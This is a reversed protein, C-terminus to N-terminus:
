SLTSQVWIGGSLLVPMCNVTWNCSLPASEISSTCATWCSAGSREEAASVAFARTVFLLEQGCCPTTVATTSGGHPGGITEWLHTVTGPPCVIVTANAGLSVGRNFSTCGATQHGRPM